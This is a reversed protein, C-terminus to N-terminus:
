ILHPCRFDSDLSTDGCLPPVVYLFQASRLGFTSELASYVVQVHRERQIVTIKNTESVKICIDITTL